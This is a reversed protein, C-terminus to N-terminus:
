SVNWIGEEGPETHSFEGFYKKAAKEYAQAAEIETKFTGLHKRKGNVTIYSVWCKGNKHYCVGKYKSYTSDAQKKSNTSNQQSTATRLNDRRNDSRYHNKHDVIVGDEVGLIIRHMRILSSEGQLGKNSNHTVVYGDQGIYWVYGKILDYDAQDFYFPQKKFTYGIYYGDKLEYKNHTQLMNQHRTEQSTCGCSMSKNGRLNDGYVNKVTHRKCSCECTWMDYVRGNKAIHDEAREVVYWRGFTKGTLDQIEKAM